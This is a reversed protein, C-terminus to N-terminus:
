PAPPRALLRRARLWMELRQVCVLGAAFLLSVDAIELPTLSWAAANEVALERLGIRLAIVGLIVLMALASAQSTLERTQPDIEIRTAAGRWWGLGAGLAMSALGALMVALRPPPQIAFSLAVLSLILAPTIWMREIRLPRPKLRRILRFAVIGLVLIWVYPAVASAEGGGTM